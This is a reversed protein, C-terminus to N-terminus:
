PHPDLATVKELFALHRIYINFARVKLYQRRILARTPWVLCNAESAAMKCGQALPVSTQNRPKRLDICFSQPSSNQFMVILRM